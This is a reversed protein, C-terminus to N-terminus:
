GGRPKRRPRPNTPPHHHNTRRIRGAEQEQRAEIKVQDQFGTKAMTIQGARLNKLGPQPTQAYAQDEAQVNDDDQNEGKLLKRGNIFAGEGKTLTPNMKKLSFDPKDIRDSKEKLPHDPAQGLARQPRGQTL